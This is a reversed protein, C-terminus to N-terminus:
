HNRKGSSMVHLNNCCHALVGAKKMMATVYYNTDPFLTGNCKEQRLAAIIILLDKSQIHKNLKPKSVEDTPFVVLSPMTNTQRNAMIVLLYSTVTCLVLLLTM